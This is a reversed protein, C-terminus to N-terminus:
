RIRSLAWLSPLSFTRRIGQRTLEVVDAHNEEGIFGDQSWEYFPKGDLEREESSVIITGELDPYPESTGQELDVLLPKFGRSLWYDNPDAPPPQQEDWVWAIYSSGEVHFWPWNIRSGTVAEM